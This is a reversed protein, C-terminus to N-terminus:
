GPRPLAGGPRRRRAACAPAGAGSRTGVIQGQGQADPHVGARHEGPVHPGLEPAGEGHHAVGDVQGGPEHGLRLRPLHDGGGVDQVARRHREAGIGERREHHLPLASRDGGVRHAGGLPPAPTPAVPEWQGPHGVLEVRDALRQGRDPGAVSPHHLDDTLLPRSLRPQDLLQGPRTVQGHGGHHALAVLGGRGVGGVPQEAPVQQAQGHVGIPALHGVAEPRLEVLMEGLQHGLQRQQGRGEVDIDAVGGLRRRQFGFEPPPGHGHRHGVPHRRGQATRRDQNELVDVVHVLGTLLDGPIEDGPQGVGPGPGADGAALGGGAEPGVAGGVYPRQVESREAALLGHLGEDPRRVICRQEGM